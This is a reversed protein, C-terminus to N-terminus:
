FRLEFEVPNVASVHGTAVRAVRLVSGVMWKEEWWVIGEAREREVGPAGVWDVIPPEARGTRRAGRRAGRGMGPDEEGSGLRHPPRGSGRGSGTWEGM